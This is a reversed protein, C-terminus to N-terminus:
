QRSLFDRVKDSVKVTEQLAESTNLIATIEADYFGSEPDNIELYLADAYAGLNETNTADWEINEDMRLADAVQLALTRKIYTNVKEKYDPDDVNRVRQVVSGEKIFNGEADRAIDLPAVPPTIGAKQWQAIVNPTPAAVTVVVADEQGRIINLAETPVASLTKGQIKM